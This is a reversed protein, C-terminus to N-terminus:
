DERQRMKSKGDDIVEEKFQDQSSHIWSQRSGPFGVPVYEMERRGKEVEIARRCLSPLMNSGFSKKSVGNLSLLSNFLMLYLSLAM